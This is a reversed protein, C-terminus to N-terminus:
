LRQRQEWEYTDHFRQESSRTDRRAEEWHESDELHARSPAAEQIRTLLEQADPKWHFDYFHIFEVTDDDEDHAIVLWIRRLRDQPDMPDVIREYTKGVFYRMAM